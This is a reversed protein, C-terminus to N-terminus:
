LGVHHAASGDSLNKSCLSQYRLRVTDLCLFPRSGKHVLNTTFSYLVGPGPFDSALRTSPIAQRLKSALYVLLCNTYKRMSYPARILVRHWWGKKYAVTANISAASANVFRLAGVRCRVVERIGKLPPGQASVQLHQVPLLHLPVAGQAPPSEHAKTPKCAKCVEM